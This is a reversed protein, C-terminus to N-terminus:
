DEVEGGSSTKSAGWNDHPSADPRYYLTFFHLRCSLQSQVGAFLQFNGFNSGRQVIIKMNQKNLLLKMIPKEKQCFTWRLLGQM